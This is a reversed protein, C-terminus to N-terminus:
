FKVILCVILVFLGLVKWEESMTEALNEPCLFTNTLCVTFCFRDFYVFGLFSEM